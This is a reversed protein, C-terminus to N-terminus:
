DNDLVARLCAQTLPFPFYTNGTKHQESHPLKQEPQVSLHHETSLSIFQM